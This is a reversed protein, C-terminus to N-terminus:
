DNSASENAQDPEDSERPEEGRLINAAQESAPTYRKMQQTSRKKPRPVSEIYVSSSPFAFDLGMSEVIDMIELNIAETEAIYANWDALFVYCIIRIDLSSGGFTVFRVVVSEPDVFERSLLMEKIKEIIQRIQRSNTDYTLGIFFDLRRKYLRSWNTVAATTMLNNPVSVLSQDLKRIQTSRIGVHEVTGEAASTVIFDGVDFPNDSVIATFGFVNAATDQAALSFALGVIGFSAVLGTVDFGWENIIILAGMVVIFVRLVTSIFPLLREEIRVGTTRWIVSPSIAFLRVVNYFVFTIAAIFLSRAVLDAYHQLDPGFDLISTSIALAVSIIILNIPGRLAELLLNDYTNNSSKTMRSVPSLIVTTIARRLVWVVGLVVIVLLIRLVVTQTELPLDRLLPIERALDM